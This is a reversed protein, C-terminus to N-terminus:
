DEGDIKLCARIGSWEERVRANNRRWELMKGEIDGDWLDKKRKGDRGEGEDRAKGSMTM